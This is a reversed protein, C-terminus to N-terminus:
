RLTRLTPFDRGSSLTGGVAVTSQKQVIAEVSFLDPDIAECERAASVEEDLGLLAIGAYKGAKLSALNRKVHSGLSGSAALELSGKYREHNSPYDLALAEDAQQAKSFMKCKKDFDLLVLVSTKM